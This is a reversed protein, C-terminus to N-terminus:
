IFGVAPAETFHPFSLAMLSGSASHVRVFEVPIFKRMGLKYGGETGPFNVPLIIFGGSECNSSVDDWNEVYYFM